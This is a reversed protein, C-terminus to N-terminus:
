PRNLKEAATEAIKDFRREYKRVLAIEGATPREDAPLGALAGEGEKILKFSKLLRDSVYSLRAEDWGAEAMIKDMRAQDPSAKLMNESMRAFKEVEAGTLPPQAAPRPLTQAAPLGTFLLLLVLGCGTLWFPPASFLGIRM